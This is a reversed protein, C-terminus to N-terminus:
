YDNRNCASYIWLGLAASLILYISLFENVEDPRSGVVKRSTAYHKLVVSGRAIGTGQRPLRYTKLVDTIGYKRYVLEFIVTLNNAKCALRANDGSLDPV